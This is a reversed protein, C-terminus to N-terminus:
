RKPFPLVEVLPGAGNLTSGSIFYRLGCLREKEWVGM